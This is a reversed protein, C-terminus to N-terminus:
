SDTSYQTLYALYEQSGGKLPLVVIQPVDYSHHQQIYTKVEPIRETRTKLLAYIEEAKEIEDKWWYQSTCPFRNSCTILKEELLKQTLDEAEEENPFTTLIIVYAEGSLSSIISFGALHYSLDDLALFIGLLLLIWGLLPFFPSFQFYLLLISVGVLVIGYYLHHPKTWKM